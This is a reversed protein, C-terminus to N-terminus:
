EGISANEDVFRPAVKLGDILNGAPQVLAAKGAFEPPLLVMKANSFLETFHAKRLTGNADVTYIFQGEQDQFVWDPAIAVAPFHENVILRVTVFSGPLIERKPNPAKVRMAVTSTSEDAVSDIFTVEGDLRVAPDDRLAIQVRPYPRSAFHRIRAYDGTTPYFDTEIMHSDVITALVTGPKVVNGVKVAERGIRGDIPAKVDCYSLRRKADDILAEDAKIAAQLKKRAAQLQEMKVRPALNEAVLPGFRAVDAEALELAARDKERQAKARYLQALYDNKDISFLLDGKHVESGPRYHQQLIEGGVRAIVRAQRSAKAKATYDVWITRPRKSLRVM